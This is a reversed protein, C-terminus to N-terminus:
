SKERSIPFGTTLLMVTKIAERARVLAERGSLVGETHYGEKRLTKQILYNLSEDDEVVLIRYGSLTTSKRNGALIGLSEMRM